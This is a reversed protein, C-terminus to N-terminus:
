DSYEWTEGVALTFKFLKRGTGSIDLTITVTVAAADANYIRIARVVKRGNVDAGDLLTVNTIGNLTGNNNASAKRGHPGEVEYEVTFDPDTTNKAGACVALLSKTDLDLVIM